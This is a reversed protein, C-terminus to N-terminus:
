RMPEIVLPGAVRNLDSWQGGTADYPVLVIADPDQVYRTLKSSQAGGARHPLLKEVDARPLGSRIQHQLVDLWQQNESPALGPDFSEDAFVAASTALGGILLAFLIFCNKRNM